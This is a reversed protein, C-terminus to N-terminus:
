FHEQLKGGPQEQGIEERDYGGCFLYNKVKQNNFLYQNGSYSAGIGTRWNGEKEYALTTSFKDQPNFPMNLKVQPNKQYAYTHNYGLYLEFSNYDIRAYTDTGYSVVHYDSNM